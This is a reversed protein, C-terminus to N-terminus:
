IDAAIVAVLVLFWVFVLVTGIIGMIMGTKTIGKGAPDMRGERMERLDNLGMSWAGIGIFGALLCFLPAVVSLIGLTLIMPGRHAARYTRRRRRRYEFEDDSEDYDDDDYDADLRPRPRPALDPDAPSSYENRRQVPAAAPERIADPPPAATAADFAAECSPCKVAKGLLTDPVRLARGCSPCALQIPM